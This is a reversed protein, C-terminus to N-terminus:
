FPSGAEGRGSVLGVIGFLCSLAVIIAISVLYKRGWHGRPFMKYARISYIIGLGSPILALPVYILLFGILFIGNNKLFAYSIGWAGVGLVLVICM